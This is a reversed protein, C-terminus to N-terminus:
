RRQGFEQGFTSGSLLVTDGHKVTRWVDEFPGVAAQLRDSLDVFQYPGAVIHSRAFYGFAGQGGVYIRAGLWEVSRVSTGNPLPLVSWDAGDHLLLGATNAVAVGPPFAVMPPLGPLSVAGAGLSVCLFFLLLAPNHVILLSVFCRLTQNGSHLTEPHSLSTPYIRLTHLAYM